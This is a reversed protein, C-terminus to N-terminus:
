YTGWAAAFSWKKGDKEQRAMLDWLFRAAPLRWSSLRLMARERPLYSVLLASLAFFLHLFVSLRSGGKARRQTENIKVGQRFWGQSPLSVSQGAARVVGGGHDDPECSIVYYEFGDTQEFTEVPLFLFALILVAAALMCNWKRCM